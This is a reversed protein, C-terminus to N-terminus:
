TSECARSCARQCFLIALSNSATQATVGAVNTSCVSLVSCTENGSAILSVVVRDAVDVVFSPSFRARIAVLWGITFPLASRLLSVDAQGGGYSPQRVGKLGIRLLEADLAALQSPRALMSITKQAAFALVGRKALHRAIELTQMPTGAAVNCEILQFASVDSLSASVDM